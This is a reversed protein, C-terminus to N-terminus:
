IADAIWGEDQHHLMTVQALRTGYLLGLLYVKSYAPKRPM